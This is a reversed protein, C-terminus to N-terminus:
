RGIRYFKMPVDATTRDEITVTGNANMKQDMFKWIRFDTSSEVVHYDQHTPNTITLRVVPNPGSTREFRSITTSQPASPDLNCVHIKPLAPFGGPDPGGPQGATGSPIGGSGAGGAGPVVFGYNVPNGLVGNVRVGGAKGGFGGNGGPGLNGYGGDGGPGGSAFCYTDTISGPENHTFDLRFHGGDGGAGGAGGSKPPNNANGSMGWGGTGGAGGWVQANIDDAEVQDAQIVVSGGKGGDGGKSGIGAAGGLTGGNGGWARVGFGDLLGAGRIVEVSGGNGGRVDASPSAPTSSGGSVSAFGSVHDSSKKHYYRFTGGTGGNVTDASFNVNVLTNRMLASKDGAVGPYIVKNDGCYVTLNPPNGSSDAVGKILSPAFFHQCYIEVEGQITLTQSQGSQPYVQRYKYTGPSLSVSTRLDGDAGDRANFHTTLYIGVTGGDGAKTIQASTSNAPDAGDAIVRFSIDDGHTVEYFRRYLAATFGIARSVLKPMHERQLVSGPVTAFSPTQGPIIAPPVQEWVSFYADGSGPQTVRITTQGPLFQSSVGPYFYIFGTRNDWEFDMGKALARNLPATVTVTPAADSLANLGMGIRVKWTNFLGNHVTSRKVRNFYITFGSDVNGSDNSDFQRAIGALHYFLRTVEADYCQPTSFPPDPLLAPDPIDAGPSDSNIATHHEAYDVWKECSDENASIISFPEDLHEDPHVHAPSAMDGLLHAVRGLLWYAKGKNGQGYEKVAKDWLLQAKQLASM